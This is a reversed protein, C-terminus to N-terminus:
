PKNRWTNEANVAAEALEDDTYDRPEADDDAKAPEEDWDPGNYEDSRPDLHELCRMAM